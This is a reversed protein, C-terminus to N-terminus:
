ITRRRIVKWMRALEHQTYSLEFDTPPSGLLLYRTFFDWVRRQVYGNALLVAHGGNPIILLEFDKNASILANALALTQSVPVNEDMDGSILLLKGTLKHAVTQNAQENWSNPGEPGRYKDSWASTYLTSDHNGCVAVAVKFISGYDCLARAAASGGGSEGIIGVRDRDLFSHRDCLETVAAAHDALQPELLSGYGCQHFARDAIPTGRTNMMITVFGLEALTCAQTAIASQFSQPQWASQPGPYISDVLPYCRTSDFDSPLFMTGYLTTMGDAALVKFHLSTPDHPKPLASAITVGRRTALDIIETRCGGAVSEYQVAAWTADPAISNRAWQPRFRRHQTPPWADTRAVAIDGDHALLVQFDSGDLNVSCLARRAPDTGPAIGGALFLVKRRKEDVNVLDRVLWNGATIRNKVRGSISDYLYLHAWGDRESIWVVENSSSLTWINPRATSASHLDLYGAATSESLAIRARCDKLDLRILEANRFYRDLRLFWAVSASAFWALQSFPLFPMVLSSPFDSFTITRGSTIHIAVYTAFPLPDGVMSYRVEHLVPRGGRPPVHEVLPLSPLDREDVRHTLFWQSDPSWLGVPHPHRRYTVGSLGSEAVQAYAFHREGDHTLPRTAGSALEKIWLDYGSVFCAHRGDPSYLAPMGWSVDSSRLRSHRWDILFDTGFISVALTDADPMDFEAESWAASDAVHSPPCQVLEKLRELPVVEQTSSMLCNAISPISVIRNLEADYREALFFYHQADIWYGETGLGPLTAAVKPATLSAARSYRCRLRSSDNMTPPKMESM